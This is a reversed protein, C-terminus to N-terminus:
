LNRIDISKWDEFVFIDGHWGIDNIPYIINKAKSLFGIWWSFTGKSLVLNDFNKAFDIILIPDNESFLKLNFDKILTQVIPHNPSDSSIYGGTFQIQRLANKYYELGPNTHVVDGLRVHVFVQNNIIEYKPNFHSLIEDRYNTVFNKLQFLGDYILGYRNTDDLVRMLDTDYVRHQETFVLDGQNLKLGLVDSNVINNYNSVKLNMKKSIISVGINQLLKNGTRGQPIITIM